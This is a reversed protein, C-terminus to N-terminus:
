DNRVTSPRESPIRMPNSQYICTFYGEFGVFIDVTKEIAPHKLANDLNCELESRLQESLLTLLKIDEAPM